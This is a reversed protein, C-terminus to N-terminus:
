KESEPAREAKTRHREVAQSLDTYGERGLRNMVARAIDRAAEDDSDLAAALIVPTNEVM